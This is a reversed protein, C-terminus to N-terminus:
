KRQRFRILNKLGITRLDRYSIMPACVTVLISSVPRVWLGGAEGRAEWREGTEERSQVRRERREGGEDSRM